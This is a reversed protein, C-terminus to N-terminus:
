TTFRILICSIVLSTTIASSKGSSTSDTQDSTTQSLPSVAVQEVIHTLNSSINLHVIAETLNQILKSQNDLKEMVHFSNLNVDVAINSLKGNILNLEQNLSDNIASLTTNITKTMQSQFQSFKLDLYRKTAIFSKEFQENLRRNLINLKSVALEGHQVTSMAHSNISTMADEIATLNSRTLNTLEGIALKNHSIAEEMDNIANQIDVKDVQCISLKRRDCPHDSWEKKSSNFGIYIATCEGIHNPQGAAWPLYDVPSGDLWVFDSKGPLNLAGIWHDTRALKHVLDNEAQSNIRLLRGGIRNCAIAAREFTLREPNSFYKKLATQGNYAIKSYTVDLQTYILGCLILKIMVGLYNITTRVELTLPASTSFYKRMWNQIRRFNILPIATSLFDALTFWLLEITMQDHSSSQLAASVSEYGSTVGCVRHPISKYKGRTLFVIFNLLSSTKIIVELHDNTKSSFFFRSFRKHVYPLILSTLGLTWLQTKSPTSYNRSERLEISLAAQGISQHRSIVTHKYIYLKILLEIEPQFTRMSEWLEAARSLASKGQAFLLSLLYDDYDEADLQNVRAAVFPKADTM